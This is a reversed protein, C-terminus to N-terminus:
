FRGNARIGLVEGVMPTAFFRNERHQRLMWLALDFVLLYGGQIIMSRGFGIFRPDSRNEGREMMWAGMVIYGVDLGANFAFMIKHRQSIQISKGLTMSSTDERIAGVLGPVALALNVTNWGINAQHFARWQPNDTTAWGVGGVGFNAVSWGALVSM